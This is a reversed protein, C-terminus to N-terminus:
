PQLVVMRQARGFAGATLKVFYIGARVREGNAGLGDWEMARSGASLMPWRMLERVLRGQLDYLGLRAPSAVPLDFRIQARNSIPNPVCPYLRLAAPVIENGASTQSPELLGFTSFHTTSGCITNTSTNLSTTIDVWGPVTTDYVMLKLNNVSGVVLTPDYTVCVTVTGTFTSTTTIGYYLPPSVPVLQFGSTPAPGQSTLNLQTNGSGTVNSFNLKVSSGFSVGVNTGAPTPAVVTSAFVWAAGASLNDGNDGVLVTKGDGAMSVSGSQYDAGTADSGLMEDGRQSWAGASRAFVWVAGVGLDDFYGGVLATNGDASLSVSTGQDAAGVAGGGILKTQESWVGASRVFVWAAGQGGNDQPGGAVATNGDASVAISRDQGAGGAAGTGVLKAGQQLLQSEANPATLLSFSIVLATCSLLKTPADGLLHQVVLM